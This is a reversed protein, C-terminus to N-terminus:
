SNDLTLGICRGGGGAKNLETLDQEAVQFGNARLKNAFQPAGTSMVARDVGNSILNCAFANVAEDYSVDICKINHKACAKEIRQISAPTFAKKCVGILGATSKTPSRLIAMALDIDYFQSDEWGSVENVYVSGTEDLMPVTKIPVIAYDPWLQQLYDAMALDTRYGSGVFLVNGCVLTDGQGSYREIHQPPHIIQKGFQRLIKEAHVEEGKRANPLRAMVAIDGRCYAWNATYVSDQWGPASECRVVHIGVSGLARAVSEHEIKALEKDPQVNQDSYINLEVVGEYNETDSMLVTRNMSPEM